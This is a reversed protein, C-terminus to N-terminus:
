ASAPTKSYVPLAMEVPKTVLYGKSAFFKEAQRGYGMSHGSSGTPTEKVKEDRGFVNSALAVGHTALTQVPVPGVHTPLVSKAHEKWSTLSRKSKVSERWILGILINLCGISFLFFASVLTFTDVHHSLIAAGILCQMVGFAGVGFNPGLVPFYLDFWNKIRKWELESLILLFVQGIILLRNLVAWFVGAPQNPVTSDSIYNADLLSQTSNSGQADIVAQGFREVARLDHVLTVINSSFVLILAISSLIRAANLFLFTYGRLPLM